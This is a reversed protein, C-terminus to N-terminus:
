YIQLVGGGVCVCVCACARARVCARVCVCVCVCVCYYRQDWVRGAVALITAVIEASNDLREQRWVRARARVCVCM